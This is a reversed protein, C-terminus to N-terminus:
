AQPLHSIANLHELIHNLIFRMEDQLEHVLINCGESIRTTRECMICDHCLPPLQPVQTTTLPDNTTTSVNTTTPAFTSPQSSHRNGVISSYMTTQFDMAQTLHSDIMNKFAYLRESRTNLEEHTNPSKTLLSAEIEEYTPFISEFRNSFDQPPEQQQDHHHFSPEGYLPGHIDKYIPHFLLPQQQPHDQDQPFISPRAHKYALREILSPQHPNENLPDSRQSRPQQQTEMQEITDFLPLPPPNSSRPPLDELSEMFPHPSTPPTRFLEM